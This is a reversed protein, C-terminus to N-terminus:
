RGIDEGDPYGLSVFMGASSTAVAPFGMNEFLRASAVDWANPLVLMRKRNNHLARFLDAKERQSQSMQAQNRSARSISRKPRGVFNDYLTTIRQCYLCFISSSFGIIMAGQFGLQDSLEILYSPAYSDSQSFNGKSNIM